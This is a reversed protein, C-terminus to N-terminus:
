AWDDDLLGPLSRVTVRGAEADVEVLEDVLPVMLEDDAAAVILWDHAPGDDVRRVTGVAAGGDDVVEAGLLAEVWLTDEDLAVDDPDLELVTGRLAEAATRDEVGAFRVLTRQKHERVDAIELLAGDGHRCVLGPEIVEALDADPHVIVEGRIGHAPGVVGLRVPAGGHTM